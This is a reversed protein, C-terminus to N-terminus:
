APRDSFKETFDQNLDEPNWRLATFASFGAELARCAPRHTMLRFLCSARVGCPRAPMRDADRAGLDRHAAQTARRRVAKTAVPTAAGSVGSSACNRKLTACPSSTFSNPM